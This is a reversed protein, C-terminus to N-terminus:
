AALLEKMQTETKVGHIFYIDREKIARRAAAMFEPTDIANVSFTRANTQEVPIDYLELLMGLWRDVFGRETLRLRLLAQGANFIKRAIDQSMIWPQHWFMRHHWGNDSPQENSCLYAHFRHTFWLPDVKEIEASLPHFWLTDYETVALIDHTGMALFRHITELFREIHNDVSGGPGCENGIETYLAVRGSPTEKPYGVRKDKRGVILLDGGSNWYYPWHRQLVPTVEAHAHIAVLLKM